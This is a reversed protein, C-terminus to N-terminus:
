NNCVAAPNDAFCVQWTGDEWQRVSRTVGTEATMEAAKKVAYAKSKYGNRM